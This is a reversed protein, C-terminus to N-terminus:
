FRSCASTAVNCTVLSGMQLIGPPSANSVSSGAHVTFSYYKHAYLMGCGNQAHLQKLFLSAEKITGVSSFFRGKRKCSNVGHM